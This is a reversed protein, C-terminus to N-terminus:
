LYASITVQTGEEYSGGSSSVSGGEGANVTLTYSITQAEQKKVVTPQTTEPTPKSCSVIIFTSFFLIGLLTRFM